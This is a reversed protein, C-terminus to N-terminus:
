SFNNAGASGRSGFLDIDIPGWSVLHKGVSLARKADTKVDMNLNLHSVDLCRMQYPSRYQVVLTSIKPYRHRACKTGLRVISQLSLM